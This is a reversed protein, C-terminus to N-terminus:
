STRSQAIFYDMSLSLSFIFFHIKKIKERERELPIKQRRKSLIAKSVVEQLKSFSL